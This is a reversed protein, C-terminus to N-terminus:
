EATEGRVLPPSIVAPVGNSSTFAYRKFRMGVPSITDSRHPYIKEYLIDFMATITPTNNILARQRQRYVDITFYCIM